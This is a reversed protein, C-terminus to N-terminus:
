FRFLLTVMPKFEGDKAKTQLTQKEYPTSAGVDVELTQKSYSVSRYVLTPGIEWKGFAVGYGLSLQFGSVDLNKTTTDTSLTASGIDTLADRVTKTGSVFYTGLFRWRGMMLGLTPGWENRSVEHELGEFDATFDRSTKLSYYGYTLGVFYHNAFTYGATTSVDFGWGSETPIDQDLSGGADIVSSADNREVYKPLFSLDFYAGAAAKSGVTLVSLCFLFYTIRM